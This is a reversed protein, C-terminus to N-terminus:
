PCPQTPAILTLRFETGAPRAEGPSPLQAQVLWTGDWTGGLPNTSVVGLIFGAATLEGTAAELTLCRYDGVAVLPASPSPSTGGSGDGTTSPVPSPTPSPAPGLSVTYAIPTGKGVQSGPAVGQEVILGAGVVPDYAELRSGNTLGAAFIAALAATENLGRIEPVAVTATGTAVAVRITAGREVVSEPAPVQSLVTGIPRGPAEEPTAELVLGLSEIETRAAELELGVVNPVPVAGTPTGSLGTLVRLVVFAVLALVALGAIGAVWSWPSSRGRDGGAPEPDFGGYTMGAGDDGPERIGGPGAVGPRTRVPLEEVQPVDPASGPAGGTGPAPSEGPAGSLSPSTAALFAELATALDNASAFRDAPDHALATRVIRDLEAPVAVLDAPGPIPGSLRAVAVAAATDGEWPRRGTLTEFLVIGLSFLDSAPVAGLGRVQEPALYHVSGMTTGPLTLQADAVARAIGFDTVKVRGDTAILVNAPKVDRHVIGRGHAASLARAVEIGIRAAQRPGLPGNRKLLSALDEGPVYEMVIFPGAADKGIDHVAVVNPHNLSAVAQAEQRFRALFDADRGYEPRLVKIAVDRGLQTDLGRYITAMGGHGLIAAVRYRGGLLSGIEVM